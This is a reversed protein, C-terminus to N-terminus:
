RNWDPDLLAYAQEYRLFARQEDGLAEHVRGLEIRAQVDLPNLEAAQRLRALAAQPDGAEQLARGLLVLAAALGPDLELAKEALARSAEFRGLRLELEARALLLRSDEPFVAEAEDLVREADGVRELTEYLEALALRADLLSPDDGVAQSLAYEALELQGKERLLRALRVHRVARSQEHTRLPKIRQSAPSAEIVRTEVADILLESGAVPYGPLRYVITGTSDVVVTTPLAIVGFAHFARLGSDIAVPFPLRRTEVFERVSQVQSEGPHSSEVNVAVVRVGNGSWKPWLESFRQLQLSSPRNWTAWFVVVTLREDAVFRRPFRISEGHPGELVLEAATSGVAGRELDPGDGPAPAPGAVGAPSLLLALALLKPSAATM